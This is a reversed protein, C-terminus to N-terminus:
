TKWYKGSLKKLDIKFDEIQENSYNDRLKQAKKSWENFKM